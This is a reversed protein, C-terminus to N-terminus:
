GVQLVTGYCVMGYRSMYPFPLIVGHTLRQALHFDTTLKVGRSLVIYYNDLFKTTISKM